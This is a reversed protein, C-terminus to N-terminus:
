NITQQLVVQLNVGTTAVSLASTEDVLLAPSSTNDFKYLGVRILKGTAGTVVRLAIGTAICDTSLLYPVMYLKNSTMTFSSTIGFNLRIDMLVRQAASGSYTQTSNIGPM